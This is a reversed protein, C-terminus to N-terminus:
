PKRQLKVAAIAMRDVWGPAILKLWQGLKGKTTMVVQRKRRMTAQVILRACEEVSMANKENLSSLEGIAGQANLGHARIQTDVVGPYAITVCVGSDILETRLSEFFGTMAFKSSCYATHGPLGILGVLSSVAVIRGQSALLHPLAAHTCWVSGWHNVRMVYEYWNLNKTEVEQLLAQAILGANNILIDIGGFNKVTTEILQICQSQDSVDVPLILTRAGVANCQSAVTQLGAVNRAALVLVAKVGYREAMQRAIEAGIGDSAGTIVITTM